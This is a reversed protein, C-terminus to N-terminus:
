AKAKSMGPPVDLSMVITAGNPVDIWTKMNPM